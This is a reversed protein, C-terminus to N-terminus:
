SDRRHSQEEIVKSVATNIRENTVYLQFYSDIVSSIIFREVFAPLLAVHLKNHVFRTVNARLVAQFEEISEVHRTAAKGFCEGLSANVAQNLVSLLAAVGKEIVWNVVPQPMPIPVNVMEAVERRLIEVDDIGMAERIYIAILSLSTTEKSLIDDLKTNGMADTLIAITAHIILREDQESLYPLYPLKQHYYELLRSQLMDRQEESVVKGTTIREWYSQPMFSEVDFVIREVASQIIEMQEDDAMGPIDVAAQILGGLAVISTKPLPERTLDRHGDLSDSCHASDRALYVSGGLALGGCVVRWATRSPSAIAMTLSAAHLAALRLGLRRAM